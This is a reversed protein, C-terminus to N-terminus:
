PKAGDASFAPDLWMAPDARELPLAKLPRETEHGETVSCKSLPGTSGDMIERMHPDCHNLFWTSLGTAPDLRLNEWARWLATVRILVEAHVWWRPCWTLTQGDLKRRIVPALFDTVFEEVTQYVLPPPEEKSKKRGGKSKRKSPPSGGGTAPDQEAPPTGDDWEDVFSTM